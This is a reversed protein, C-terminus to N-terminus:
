VKRVAWSFPFTLVGPVVVVNVVFEAGNIGDVWWYFTPDDTSKATPTITIDSALPTYSLGHTVHVHNEAADIHATGSNETIYGVMNHIQIDTTSDNDVQENTNNEARGGLIRISSALNDIYIGDYQTPAGQDDSVDAGLVQGNECANNILLGDGLFPDGHADLGNNKLQGKVTFVKVGNLNVGNDHNLTAIVDLNVNECTAFYIGDILNSYIRGKLNINSSTTISAGRESNSHLCGNIDCGVITDLSLGSLTNSHSIIDLTLNTVDSAAFGSYTNLYTETQLNVNDTNVAFIGNQGNSFCLINKGTVNTVPADTSFGICLGAGAVAGWSFITDLAVKDCATFM